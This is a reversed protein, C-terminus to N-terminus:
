NEISELITIVMGLVENDECLAEDTPTHTGRRARRETYAVNREIIQELRKAIRQTDDYGKAKAAKALEIIDTSM